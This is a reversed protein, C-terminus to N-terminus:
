PHSQAYVAGRHHITNVGSALSLLPRRLLLERDDRDELHLAFLADTCTGLPGVHSIEIHSCVVQPLENISKLYAHVKEQRHYIHALTIHPPRPRAYPITLYTGLITERMMMRLATLASDERITCLVFRRKLPSIHPQDLKLTLPKMKQVLIETAQILAEFTQSPVFDGMVLTIHPIMPSTNSFVIASNTIRRIHANVQLCFQTTQEDLALHINLRLM